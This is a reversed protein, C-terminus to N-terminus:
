RNKFKSKLTPSIFRPKANEYSEKDQYRKKNLSVYDNGNKLTKESSVKGFTNATTSLSISKNHRNSQSNYSM